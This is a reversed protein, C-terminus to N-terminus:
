GQRRSDFLERVRDADSPTLIAPVNRDAGLVARVHTKTWPRGGTTTIGRENWRRAISALSVGNLVDTAARRILQAEAARVALKRNGVERRM